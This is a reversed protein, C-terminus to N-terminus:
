HTSFAYYGIIYDITPNKPSFSPHKIQLSAEGQRGGGGVRAHIYSQVRMMGFTLDSEIEPLSQPEVVKEKQLKYNIHAYEVHTDDLDVTTPMSSKKKSVVAVDTYVM